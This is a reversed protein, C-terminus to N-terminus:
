GIYVCAVALFLPIYGAIYLLAIAGSVVFSRLDSVHRLRFLWTVVVVILYVQFAETSLMQPVGIAFFRASFFLQSFCEANYISVAAFLLVAGIFPIHLPKGAISRLRDNLLPAM